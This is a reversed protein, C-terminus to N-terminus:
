ENLPGPKWQFRVKYDLCALPCTCRQFINPEEYPDYGGSVQLNVWGTREQEHKALWLRPFAVPFVMSAKAPNRCTGALDDWDSVSSRREIQPLHQASSEGTHSFPHMSLHAVSRVFQEDPYSGERKAFNIM